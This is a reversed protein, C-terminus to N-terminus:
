NRPPAEVNPRFLLSQKYLFCCAKGTLALRGRLQQCGTGPVSPERPSGSQARHCAVPMHRPCCRPALGRLRSTDRCTDRRLADSGVTPMSRCKRPFPRCTALAAKGGSDSRTVVQRPKLYLLSWGGNLRLRKEGPLPASPALTVHCPYMPVAASAASGAAIALPRASPVLQVVLGLGGGATPGHGAALV